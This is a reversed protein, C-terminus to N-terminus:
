QNGGYRDEFYCDLSCYKRNKNGYATFTKKCTPCVFEYNAKRKVQDLHENWWNMRCHDSCFRKKKRHPEQIIKRGCVECTSVTAQNEPAEPDPALLTRACYSRITNVSLGTAQAIKKYGFGATRLKAVQQKEEPTM